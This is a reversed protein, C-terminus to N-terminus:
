QILQHNRSIPGGKVVNTSSTQLHAGQRHVILQHRSTPRLLQHFTLQDNSTPGGISGPRLNCYLVPRFGPQSKLGKVRHDFHPGVELNLKELPAWRQNCSRQNWRYSKMWLGRNSERYSCVKQILLLVQLIHIQFRHQNALSEYLSFCDGSNM